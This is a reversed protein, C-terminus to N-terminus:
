GDEASRREYPEVFVVVHCYGEGCGLPGHITLSLDEQWGNDESVEVVIPADPTYDSLDDQVVGNVTVSDIEVALREKRCCPHAAADNPALLLAAAAAIAIRASM